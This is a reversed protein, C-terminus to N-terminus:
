DKAKNILADLLKKEDDILSRVKRLDSLEINSKKIWNENTEKFSLHSLHSITLMLVINDLAEQMTVAYTKISLENGEQDIVKSVYENCHMNNM